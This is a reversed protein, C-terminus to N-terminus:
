RGGFFRNLVLRQRLPIHEEHIFVLALCAMALGFDRVAVDNLGMIGILHAAAIAPAIRPLVSFLILIALVADFVANVYVLTVANAGQLSRPLYSTFILPDTFQSFAFYAFVIALGLRLIFTGRFM